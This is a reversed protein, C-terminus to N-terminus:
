QAGETTVSRLPDRQQQSQELHQYRFKLRLFDVPKSRLRRMWLEGIQQQSLGEGAVQEGKDADDVQEQAEQDIVFDDADLTGEGRRDADVSEPQRGLAKVLALNEAAEPWRNRLALARRYDNAAAQYDTLHALANARNYYREPGGLAAFQNAAAAFDQAAYYAVGKWYSDQFRRAAELYDGRDFYYRGQQDRSLWPDQWYGSNLTQVGYCIVGIALSAVLLIGFLWATYGPRHRHTLAM